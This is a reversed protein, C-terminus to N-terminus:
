RDVQRRGVVARLGLADDGGRVPGRALSHDARLAAGRCQIECRLEVLLADAPVRAGRHKSCAFRLARVHSWLNRAMTRFLHSASPPFARPAPSSALSLGPAPDSTM